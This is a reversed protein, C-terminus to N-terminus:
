LVKVIGNSFRLALDPNAPVLANLGVPVTRGSPTLCDIEGGSINQMYIKGGDSSSVVRIVPKAADAVNTSGVQSLFVIKGPILPLSYKCGNLQLTRFPPIAKGCNPCVPNAPDLVFIDNGCSCHVIDSRFHILLEQWENETIRKQPDFLSEKSFARTFASRMYDPLEPWILGINNHVGKVPRNSADDPDLIFVPDIGYLKNEGEDDLCPVLFRRGELPHSMTITLFLITALSYRDTMTDPLMKEGAGCYGRVIEPAMYRPTGLIGTHTKNPAVNDNDCILVKGTTPNIFFNGDNLDQYSYGKNHLIRFASVIQLCADVVATFSSFTKHNAGNYFKSLDYFGSPRLDMIYGFVSPDKGAIPPITDLPWLFASDPSDTAVNHKLNAYFAKPDHLSGPKYIKMAKDEGNYKVRYVVGQGGEGLKEGIEVDVGYGSKVTVSM